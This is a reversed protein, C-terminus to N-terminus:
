KAAVTWTGAESDATVTYLNTDVYETVDFNYIGPLVTLTGKLPPAFSGVTVNGSLTLDEKSSLSFYLTNTNEIECDAIYATRVSLAACNAVVKCKELNFNNNNAEIGFGYTNEVTGNKITVKGSKDNVRIIQNDCSGSLTHENLDLVYYASNIELQADGLDIDNVLKFVGDTNAMALLDEATSITQTAPVFKAVTVTITGLSKDVDIGTGDVSFSTEDKPANEVETNEATTLVLENKTFNGNM